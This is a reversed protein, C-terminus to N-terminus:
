KKSEDKEKKIEEDSKTILQLTFGKNPDTSYEIEQKEAYGRDRNRTKNFNWINRESGEKMSKLLLHEGFDKVEFDAEEVFHKYNEDEKLWRYHTDRSIGVQKCATTVIGLQIGLSRIMLAKKGRPKRYKKTEDM